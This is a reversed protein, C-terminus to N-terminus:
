VGAADPSPDERAENLLKGDFNKEHTPKTFEAIVVPKFKEGLLTVSIFRPQLPDPSLLEFEILKMIRDSRTSSAMTKWGADFEGALKHLDSKGTQAPHPPMCQSLIFFAYRDMRKLKKLKPHERFFIERNVM